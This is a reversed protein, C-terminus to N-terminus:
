KLQGVLPTTVRTAVGVFETIGNSGFMGDKDNIIWVKGSGDIAIDRPLSWGIGAAYTIKKNNSFNFETVNNDVPAGNDGGSNVVWVNSSGDIALSPRCM